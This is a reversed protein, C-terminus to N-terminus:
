RAPEAPRTVTPRAARPAPQHQVRQPAVCAAVLQHARQGHDQPHLRRRGQPRPHTVVVPIGQGARDAAPGRGPAARRDARVGHAAPGAPPRRRVRQLGCRGLRRQREGDVEGGCGMSATAGRSPQVRCDSLHGSRRPVGGRPRRGADAGGDGAGLGLADLRRRLQEPVVDVGRKKITLPGVDRARLAARLAKERFPLEEVVRYARAFPTAVLRDATVYALHEDVLRGGVLAAVATVLGARTVADDPEYLYGLVPGAPPPGPDDAETLTAGAPLVTARRRATALPLGWLAAEVLDGGDSVWEAEVGPPVLRHPIGPASKAVAHASTAGRLLAEVLTWPPSWTAPDFTRGTAGRRAPDVFVADYATVEIEDADAEVVRGPLGLADLNALAMAARAPDLDVGTVDLGARALAVLDAGIGCGLDVVTRAGSGALRAARHAAVRRRTAQELGARDFVMRAADDGLKSTAREHLGAVSTAAAVLGPEHGRRLREAVALLDGGAALEARVLRRLEVGAPSALARVTAADM